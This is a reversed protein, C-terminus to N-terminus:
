PQSIGDMEIWCQASCPVVWGQWGQWLPLFHTTKLKITQRGGWTMLFDQLSPVNLSSIIGISSHLQFKFKAILEGELLDELWQYRFYWRQLETLTKQQQLIYLSRQSRQNGGKRPCPSRNRHMSAMLAILHSLDHLSKLDQQLAINRAASARCHRPQSGNQFAEINLWLM